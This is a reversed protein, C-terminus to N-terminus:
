EPEKAARSAKKSRPHCCPIKRFSRSKRAMQALVFAICRLNAFCPLYTIPFIGLGGKRVMVMAVPISPQLNQPLHVQPQFWLKQQTAPLASVANDM